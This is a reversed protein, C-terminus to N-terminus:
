EENLISQKVMNEWNNGTLSHFFVQRIWDDFSEEKRKCGAYSDEALDLLFFGGKKLEDIEKILQELGAMCGNYMDKEFYTEYLPMNQKLSRATNDLKALDEKYFMKIIEELNNSYKSVALIKNLKFSNNDMTAIRIEEILRGLNNNNSSSEIILHNIKNIKERIDKGIAAKEKSDMENQLNNVMSEMDAIWISHGLFVPENSFFTKFFIEIQKRKINYDVRQILTSNVMNGNLWEGLEFKLTVLAIRGNKDQLESTWITENNEPDKEWEELRGRTKEEYCFDCIRKDEDVIEKDNSIFFARKQCIPCLGNGKENDMYDYHSYDAQLFNDKAQELLHSLNM